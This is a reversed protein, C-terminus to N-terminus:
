VYVRGLDSYQQRFDHIREEWHKISPLYFVFGFVRSSAVSKFEDTDKILKPHEKLVCLPLDINMKQTSILAVETSTLFVIGEDFEQKMWKKYATELWIRQNSKKFYTAKDFLRTSRPQENKLAIDRPPYLYINKGKWDQKLGNDKWNFHRTAQVITNARENSAPDLFTEGGLFASTVAILDPPSIYDFSALVM